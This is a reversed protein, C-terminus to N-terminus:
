QPVRSLRFILCFVESKKRLCLSYRIGGFISFLSFVLLALHKRPQRKAGQNPPTWQITKSVGIVGSLVYVIVVVMLTVIVVGATLGMLTRLFPLSVVYFSLDKRFIPDVLGWDVGTLTFLLQLGLESSVVLGFWLGFFLSVFLGIRTVYSTSVEESFVLDGMRRRIRFKGLSKSAIMINGFIFLASLVTTLCRVGWQWGLQKWFIPSYGAAAFWLKDIYFRASLDTLLIAIFFASALGVINRESKFIKRTM